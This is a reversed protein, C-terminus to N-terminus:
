SELAREASEDVLWSSAGRLRVISNRKSLDLDNHAAEEDAEQDGNESPVIGEEDDPPPVYLSSWGCVVLMASVFVLGVVVVVLMNIADQPNARAVLGYGVLIPGSIKAASGAMSLWAMYHGMNRILSGGEHNMILKSFLSPQMTFAFTFGFAVLITSGAELAILGGQPIAVYASWDFSMVCGVVFVFIGTAEISRESFKCLENLMGSVIASVLVVLGIGAFVLGSVWAPSGFRHGFLPVVFTEFSSIGTVMLFQCVVLIYCGCPPGTRGTEAITVGSNSRPPNLSTYEQAKRAESVEDLSSPDKLLAATGEAGHEPPDYIWRHVIYVAVIHLLLSSLAPANYANISLISGREPTPFCGSLAAVAPAFVM